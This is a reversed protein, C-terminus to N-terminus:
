SFRSKYKGIEGLHTFKFGQEYKLGYGFVRDFCSHTFLIIGMLQTMENKLFFGMLFITIAIGKHHFINYIFAGIRDNVLYGLLGIDPLFFLGIFWWWSFSLLYFGTIGLTLMALEEIKLVIKM